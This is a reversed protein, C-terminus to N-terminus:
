SCKQDFVEMKGKEKELVKKEQLLSTVTRKLIEYNSKTQANEKKLEDIKKCFMNVEEEYVNKLRSVLELGNDLHRKESDKYKKECELFTIRQELIAINQNKSQVLEKIEDIVLKLHLNEEQLNENKLKEHQLMKFLHPDKMFAKPPKCNSEETKESTRSNSESLDSEYMESGIQEKENSSSSRNRKVEEHLFSESLKLLVESAECQLKEDMISNENFKNKENKMNEQKEDKKYKSEKVQFDANERKIHDIDNSISNRNMVRYSIDDSSNEIDCLSKVESKSTEIESDIDENYNELSSVFTIKGFKQQSIEGSEIDTEIQSSSEILKYSDDNKKQNNSSRKEASWSIENRIEAENSSEQFCDSKEELLFNEIHKNENKSSCTEIEHITQIGTAISEFNAGSHIDSKNGKEDDLDIDNQSFDPKEFIYQGNAIKKPEFQNIQHQKLENKSIQCIDLNEKQEYVTSKHTNEIQSDDFICKEIIIGENVSIVNKGSKENTEIAQKSEVISEEDKQEHKEQIMTDDFLNSKIKKTTEIHTKDKRTPTSIRKRKNSNRKLVMILTFPHISILLLEFIPHFCKTEFFCILKQIIM